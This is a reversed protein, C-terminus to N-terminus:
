SKMERTHYRDRVYRWFYRGKSSANMLGSHINEPVGDYQYVRGSLFKIELVGNEYGVSALNSSKVPTRNM